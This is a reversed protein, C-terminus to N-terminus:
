WKGFFRNRFKDNNGTRRRGRKRTAAFAKIDERRWIPGCSPHAVKNPLGSLRLVNYKSNPKVGLIIAAEKLGILDLQQTEM